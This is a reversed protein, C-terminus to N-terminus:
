KLINELRFTLPLEILDGLRTYLVKSNSINKVLEFDIYAYYRFRDDFIFGNFYLSESIKGFMITYFSGDKPAYLAVIDRNIIPLERHQIWNVEIV